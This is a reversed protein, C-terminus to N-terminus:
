EYYGGVKLGKILSTKARQLRKKALDYTVGLSKAIEKRSLGQILYLQLIEQEKYPMSFIIKMINKVEDRVIIEEEIGERQKKCIAELMSEAESTKGNKSLISFSVNRVIVKLFAKTEISEVAGVKHMNKAVRLFTEQLADESWQYDKLISHAIGFLKSHYTEYLIIFKEKNDEEPILSLFLFM